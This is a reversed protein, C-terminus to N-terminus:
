IIKMGAGDGRFVLMAHEGRVTGEKPEEKRKTGCGLERVRGSEIDFFAGHVQLGRDQVAQKVTRNAMLVRVGEEVNRQALKVAKDDDSKMRNLEGQCKEKVARLPTLWLDLLQGVPTDSLTAIAGGCCSHGCLVIHQVGLFSVAYEIVASTNLDTPSIINAINRHVFIDGPQLGMITTEPCRSDSCGLWLIQPSQGAALRPFFDPNQHGKYGAWAANSTLAYAFADESKTM